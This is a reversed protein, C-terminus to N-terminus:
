IFLIYVYMFIYVYEKESVLIYFYTKKNRTDILYKKLALIILKCHNKQNLDGYSTVLVSNNLNLDKMFVRFM